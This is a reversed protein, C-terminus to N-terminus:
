NSSFLMSSIEGNNLKNLKSVRLKDLLMITSIVGNCNNPFIIKFQSIISLFYEVM